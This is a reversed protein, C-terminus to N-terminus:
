RKTITVDAGLADAMKQLVDLGVSYKGKIIKNINSYSLGAREALERYTLGQEERLENLKSGIRFRHEENLIQSM